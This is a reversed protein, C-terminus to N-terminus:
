EQGHHMMMGMGHGGSGMKGRWFPMGQAAMESMVEVNTKILEMLAQNLELEVTVKLKGNKEAEM